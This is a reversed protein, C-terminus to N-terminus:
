WSNNIIIFNGIKAHASFSSVYNLRGCWFCSSFGILVPGM